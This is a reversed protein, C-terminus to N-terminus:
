ERPRGNMITPCDKWSNGKTPKVVTTKKSVVKKMKFEQVALLKRKPKKQEFSDEFIDPSSNSNNKPKKDTIVECVPSEFSVQRKDLQRRASRRRDTSTQTAINAHNRKAPPTAKPMLKTKKAATITAPESSKRKKIISLNEDDSLEDNEDSKSNGAKTTKDETLDVVNSLNDNPKGNIESDDDSEPKKVKLKRGRRNNKKLDVVNPPNNQKGNIEKDNRPQENEDDSEPITVKPKRVRKVKPADIIEVDDVAVGKTKTKKNM